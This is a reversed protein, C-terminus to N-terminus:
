AVRMGKGVAKFKCEHGDCYIEGFIMATEASYDASLDFRANEINTEINVLHM